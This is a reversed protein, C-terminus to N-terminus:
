EAGELREAARTLSRHSGGLSASRVQTANGLGRPAKSFEISRLIGQHVILAASLQLGPTALAVKAFCHDDAQNSFRPLVPESTGFYLNVLRDKLYRQVTELHALQERVATQDGEPLLTVAHEVALAEYSRLRGSGYLIRRCVRRLWAIVHEARDRQPRGLLYTPRGAKAHGKPRGLNSRDM